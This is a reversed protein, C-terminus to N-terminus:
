SLVNKAIERPRGKHNPETLLYTIEIGAKEMDYMLISIRFSLFKYATFTVIGVTIGTASCLLSQYIGDALEVTTTYGGHLTFARFAKLLGLVTGLLGIMPAVHAITYLLPLNKELKPVELQAANQIVEKIWKRDADYQLIATYLVRAVPGPTCACEQIAEAFNKKEILTALGKLFDVVHLSERHLSLWRELFAGFAVISCLLLVWMLPGGNQLVEAM